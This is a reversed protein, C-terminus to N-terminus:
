HHLKIEDGGESGACISLAHDDVAIEKGMVSLDGDIEPRDQEQIQPPHIEPASLGPSLSKDLDIAIAPGPHRIKFAHADIVHRTIIIFAKIRWAIHIRETRLDEFM